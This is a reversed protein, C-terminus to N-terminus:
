SGSLPSASYSPRQVTFPGTGIPLLNGSARLEDFTVTLTGNVTDPFTTTGSGTYTYADVFSVTFIVQTAGGNTNDAVDSRVQIQYTNGAYASSAVASYFTQNVNTLNYFNIGPTAGGFARVGASALLASWSANQASATGGVRSSAIRIKGGSNFFWRARDASSFIVQCTTSVNSIWDATRTVTTASDVIFQGDGINFKNAVAINAQLDYQNNPHGAGYRIPQGQVAQVINPTLGDQHIRANVIDFRLADWQAKTINTGTAVPGSVITQGYGSQGFGTGMIQSIKTRIQNYDANEIISGTGAAM